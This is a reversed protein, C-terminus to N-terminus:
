QRLEAHQGGDISATEGSKVLLRPRSRIVVLDDRYFLDRRRPAGDRFELRGEHRDLESAPLHFSECGPLGGDRCPSPSSPPAVSGCRRTVVFSVGREAVVARM